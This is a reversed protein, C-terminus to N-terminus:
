NFCTWIKIARKGARCLWYRSGSNYSSWMRSDVLSCISRAFHANLVCCIRLSPLVSPGWFWLAKVFDLRKRALFIRAELESQNPYAGGGGAIIGIAATRLDKLANETVSPTGTNWKGERISSHTQHNSKGCPSWCAFSWCFAFMKKFIVYRAMSLLFKLVAEVGLSVWNLWM